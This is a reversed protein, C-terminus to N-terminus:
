LTSIIILLPKCIPDHEAKEIDHILESPEDKVEDREVEEELEDEEDVEEVGVCLAGGADVVPVDKRFHLLVLLM